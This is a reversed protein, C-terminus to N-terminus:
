DFRINSLNKVANLVHKILYDIEDDTNFRGMGIRIALHSDEEGMGLALLVHSPEVSQTTCASGASIAIKKNITNIIAKGDIGPFIVNINHLLRNNPPGNLKAGFKQFSKMINKFWKGFRINEEHMENIAIEIAKGFGVIAPVNLTGSRMNREQGGGRLIPDPKVRPKIGRVYLAGIGKPGYMKHASFSMLDINMAQVDIPIHGVAQAADTHFIINKEHAIKGIKEVDAITGIENNAAMISIMVTKDTISNSLENLDIEGYKNVPLYTIKKSLTELYKAVDLIADHETVCTILHNGRDAYKQMTGVLALNNSETAGSTFIIEDYQAGISKAIKERASKVAISAENGFSHDTSSANGFKTTFYPMMEELVRNDLPTTAHHDLYIPFKM